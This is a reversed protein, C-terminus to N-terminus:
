SKAVWYRPCDIGVQPMLCPGSGSDAPCLPKQCIVHVGAAQALLCHTRHFAPPSLIDVFDLTEAALLRAADCYAQATPAFHARCREAAASDPDALAVIAVEPIRAWARLHFDAIMGCGIVAGRLRKM